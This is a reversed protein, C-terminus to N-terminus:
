VAVMGKSLLAVLPLIAKTLSHFGRAFFTPRGVYWLASSYSLAHGPLALIGAGPRHPIRVAIDLGGAPQSSATVARLLRGM